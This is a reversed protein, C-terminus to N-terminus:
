FAKDTKKCMGRFTRTNKGIGNFWEVEGSIRNISGSSSFDTQVIGFKIESEGISYMNWGYKDTQDRYLFNNFMIHADTVEATILSENVSKAGDVYSTTKGECVLYFSEAMVSTSIFLLLTLLHKM